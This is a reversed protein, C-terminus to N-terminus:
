WKKVNKANSYSILLVQLSLMFALIEQEYEVLPDRPEVVVKRDFSRSKTRTEVIAM